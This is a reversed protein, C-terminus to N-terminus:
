PVLAGAPELAGIATGDDHPELDGPRTREIPSLREGGGVPLNGEPPAFGNQVVVVIHPSAAEFPFTEVM